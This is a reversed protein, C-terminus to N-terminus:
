WHGRYFVLVTPSGQQLDKETFPRGDALSTTFEPLKRNVQVPGQYEPLRSLSLIFYWEGACLLVLLLCVIVRTWTPRQRFSVVVLLVGATAMIPLYWPTVLYKLLLIQGFNFVLGLLFLGIGLWLWWRGRSRPIPPATTPSQQVIEM